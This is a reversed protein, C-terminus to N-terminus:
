DVGYSVTPLKDEIVTKSSLATMRKANYIDTYIKNVANDGEILSFLMTTGYCLAELAKEDAKIEDSLRSIQPIKLDLCIQNIIDLARILLNESDAMVSRSNIYGLLNLVRKFIDNGKM